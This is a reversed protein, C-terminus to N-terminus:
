WDGHFWQECGGDCGIMFRKEDFPKRCICYLEEEPAEEQFSEKPPATEPADMATNEQAEASADIEMSDM